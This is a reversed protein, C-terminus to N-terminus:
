VAGSEFFRITNKDSPAVSDEDASAATSGGLFVHLLRLSPSVFLFLSTQLSFPTTPFLLLNLAPAPLWSMASAHTCAQQSVDVM